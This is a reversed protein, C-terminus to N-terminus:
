IIMTDNTILGFNRNACSFVDLISTIKWICVKLPPRQFFLIPGADLNSRDCIVNIRFGCNHCCQSSHFRITVPNATVGIKDNWDNVESQDGCIEMEPNGGITLLLKDNCTGIYNYM